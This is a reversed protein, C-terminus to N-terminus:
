RDIRANFQFLDVANIVGDANYDLISNYEEDVSTSGFAAQFEASDVENVLGDGNIDGYLREFDITFDNLMPMFCVRVKASDITLTYSGDPLSGGVVDPSSNEFTLTVVTQGNILETSVDSDAIVFSDNTTSNAISFAGSDIRVNSDFAVTINRVVSAQDSGDDIVVMEVEPMPIFPLLGLLILWLLRRLRRLKKLRYM